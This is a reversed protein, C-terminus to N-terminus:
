YEVQQQIDKDNIKDLDIKIASKNYFQIEKEGKRTKKLIRVLFLVRCDACLRNQKTMYLLVLYIYM